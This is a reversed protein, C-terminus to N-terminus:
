KKLVNRVTNNSKKKVKVLINKKTKMMVISCVSLEQQISHHLWTIIIGSPTKSIIGRPWTVTIKLGISGFDCQGTSM